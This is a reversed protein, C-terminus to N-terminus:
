MANLWHVTEGSILPRSYDIVLIDEMSLGPVNVQVYGDRRGIEQGWLEEAFYEKEFLGRRERIHFLKVGYSGPDTLIADERVWFELELGDAPSVVFDYTTVKPLLEQYVHNSIFTCAILLLLVVMGIQLVIKKRRM